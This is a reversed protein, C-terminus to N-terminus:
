SNSELLPASTEALPIDLSDVGRWETACVFVCTNRLGEQLRAAGGGKARLNGSSIELALADLIRAKQEPTLKPYPREEAPAM